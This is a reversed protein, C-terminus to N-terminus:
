CPQGIRSVKRFWNSFPMGEDRAFAFIQRSGAALGALCGSLTLAEMILCMVTAGGRSGTAMYFIDIFPYPSTSALVMGEIDTICFVMTVIMVFGLAGNLCITTMIMRPVVVSANRVEEAM